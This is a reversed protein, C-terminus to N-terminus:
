PESLPLWQASAGKGSLVRQFLERQCSSSVECKALLDGNARLVAFQLICKLLVDSSINFTLIDNWVPNITERQISSKKKKLNKKNQILSV